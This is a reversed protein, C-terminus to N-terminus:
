LITCTKQCATLILHTKLITDIRNKEHVIFNRYADNESIVKELHRQDRLLNKM